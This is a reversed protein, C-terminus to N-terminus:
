VIKYRPSVVTLEINDVTVYHLSLPHHDYLDSRQICRLVPRPPQVVHYSYLKHDFCKVDLVEIAMYVQPTDVASAVLRIRGFDPVGENTGLVVVSGPYFKYHGLQFWNCVFFRM